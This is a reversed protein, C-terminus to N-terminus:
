SSPAKPLDILSPIPVSALVLGNTVQDEAENHQSAQEVLKMLFYFRIWELRRLIPIVEAEPRSFRHIVERRPRNKREDGGIKHRTTFKIKVGHLRRLPVLYRKLVWRFFLGRDSITTDIVARLQSKYPVMGSLSVLRLSNQGPSLYENMLTTGPLPSRLTENDTPQQEGSQWPWRMYIFIHLSRIFRFCPPLKQPLNDVADTSFKKGLFHCLAGEIQMVFKATGYFVPMVEDHIQHNIRLVAPCCRQLDRRSAPIDPRRDGYYSHGEVVADPVLYFYVQNRLEPPLSLFSTPAPKVTRPRVQLVTSSIDPANM